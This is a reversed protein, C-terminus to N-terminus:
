AAENRGIVAAAAPPPLRERRVKEAQTLLMPLVFLSILWAVFAQGLAHSWQFRMLLWLCVFWVIFFCFNLLLGMVLWGSHFITIQGLYGEEMYRSPNGEEYYRLPQNKEVKFNGKEDTPPKFVHEQGEKDTAIIELPREPLRRGGQSVYQNNGQRTYQVKKRDQNTITLKDYRETERPSFEHLPRYRGEDGPKEISRYDLIIWIVLFLTLAAGAAPARWYIAEAPESYIYGQFFLTWAALLLSLVVFVVLVILVLSLM